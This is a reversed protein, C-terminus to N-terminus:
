LSRQDFGTGEIREPDRTIERVSPSRVRAGPGGRNVRNRQSYESRDGRAKDVPRSNEPCAVSCPPSFCNGPARCPSKAAM